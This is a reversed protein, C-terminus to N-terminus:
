KQMFIAAMKHFNLSNSTDKIQGWIRLRRGLILPVPSNQVRNIWKQRWNIVQWFKSSIQLYTRKDTQKNTQRDTQRNTQFAICTAIKSWNVRFKTWMHFRTWSLDTYKKYTSPWIVLDRPWFTPWIKFNDYSRWNKLYFTSCFSMLYLYAHGIKMYSEVEPLDEPKFSRRSRLIAAM